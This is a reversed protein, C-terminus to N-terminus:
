ENLGNLAGNVMGVTHRTGQEKSDRLPPIEGRMSCTIVYDDAHQKPKSNQLQTVSLM